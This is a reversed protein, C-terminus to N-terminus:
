KLLYLKEMAQAQEGNPNRVTVRYVYVGKALQDGFDDRGDWAIGETRFGQTKVETNITRVLRGTVTFVEIQTEL